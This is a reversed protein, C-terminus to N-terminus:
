LARWSGDMTNWGKREFIEESASAKEFGTEKGESARGRGGVGRGGGRAGGGRGARRADAAASAIGSQTPQLAAWGPAPGRLELRGIESSLSSVPAVGLAAWKPQDAMIESLSPLMAEIKADFPALQAAPWGLRLLHKRIRLAVTVGLADSHQCASVMTGVLPVDPSIGRSHMEAWLRLARRSGADTRSEVLPQILTSFTVLDITRNLGVETKAQQFAQLALRLQGNTACARMWSNLSVVDVWGSAQLRRWMVGASRLDRARGYGSLLIALSFANPRATAPSDEMLALVKGALPTEDVSVLASLLANCVRVPVVPAGRREAESDADAAAAGGRKCLAFCRRAADLVLARNRPTGRGGGSRGGYNLGGDGTGSTREPWLSAAARAPPPAPPPPVAQCLGVIMACEVDHRLSAAAQAGDGGRGDRGDSGGVAGAQAAAGSAEMRDSIAEMYGAVARAATANGREFCATLLTTVTYSNPVVGLRRMEVLLPLVQELPYDASLMGRMLSTYGIVDPAPRPRLWLRSEAATANAAGAAGSGETAAERAAAASAALGRMMARALGVRRHRTCASVLTNYTVANPSAVGLQARMRRLVSFASHLPRRVAPAPQPLQGQQQQASPAGRGYRQGPQAQKGPRGPSTLDAYGRLLTNFTRVSPEVAGEDLMARLAAEAMQTRGNRCYADILANYTALDPAVRRAQMGTFTSSVGAVNGARGHGKILICYTFANVPLRQASMSALLSTCQEMRGRHACADLVMNLLRVDSEAAASVVAEDPDGEATACEDLAAAAARRAPLRLELYARVLASAALLQGSRSLGMLLTSVDARNTAASVNYRSYVLPRSAADSSSLRPGDEFGDADHVIGEVTRAAPFSPVFRVELLLEGDGGDGGDSSGGAGGGRGSSGGGVSPGASARRAVSAGARAAAASAAGPGWASPAVAAALAPLVLWSM